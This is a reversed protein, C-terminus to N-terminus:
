PCFVFHLHLGVCREFFQNVFQPKWDFFRPQRDNQNTQPKGEFFFETQLLAAFPPRGFLAGAAPRLYSLYQGRAGQKEPRFSRRSRCPADKRRSMPLSLTQSQAGSTRKLRVLTTEVARKFPSLTGNINLPARSPSKNMPCMSFKRAGASRFPSMKTSSLAGACLFRSSSSISM